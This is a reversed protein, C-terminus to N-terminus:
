IDFATFASSLDVKKVAANDHRDPNTKKKQEFCVEFQEEQRFACNADRERLYIHLMVTMRIIAASIIFFSAPDNMM